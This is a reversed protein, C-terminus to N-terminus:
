RRAFVEVGLDARDTMVGDVGADLLRNMEAPDDITWIHVEVKAAHFAALVRPSTTRV